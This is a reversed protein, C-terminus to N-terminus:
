MYEIGILTRTGDTVSLAPLRSMDHCQNTGVSASIDVNVGIAHACRCDNCRM